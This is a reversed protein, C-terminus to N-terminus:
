NPRDSSARAPSERVTTAPGAPSRPTALGETVRLGSLDPDILQDRDSPRQNVKQDDFVCVTRDKGNPSIVKTAYTMYTKANLIVEIERYEAKDSPQKPVAKLVIEEGSREITVDFRDRVEVARIGVLLPLFQHPGQLRRALQHIFSQFWGGGTMSEDKSLLSQMTATSFRTCLRTNGEIWLTEKDKWIIAESLHSWDNTAGGTTEWIEYRGTHPAEYYFRGQTIKPQDGGFVDDYRFVTLKVDLSRCKQSAEEWKALVSEVSPGPDGALCPFGILCEAVLTMVPWSRLCKM